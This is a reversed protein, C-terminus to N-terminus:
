SGFAVAPMGSVTTSSSTSTCTCCTMPTSTRAAVFFHGNAKFLFFTGYGGTRLWNRHKRAFNEIQHQTLCLKGVDANLEGFMQAFTADKVMEHVEIPTEVTAQGPENAGWNEFDPDSWAFVDKAGFLMVSGNVADLILEEGGSILRLVTEKVVGTWCNEKRLFSKLETLWQQSAEGSLKEVLDCLVRITDLPLDVIKRILAGLMDKAM